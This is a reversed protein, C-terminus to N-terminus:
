YWRRVAELKYEAPPQFLSPDPEARSIQTLKWTFQGARPDYKTWLLVTDLEKSWWYEVTIEFPRDFGEWGTPL